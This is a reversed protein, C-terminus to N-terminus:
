PQRRGGPTRRKPIARTLFRPEWAAATPATSTGGPTGPGTRAPFCCPSAQRGPGTIDLASEWPSTLGIANTSLPSLWARRGLTGRAAPRRLQGDAPKGSDPGSAGCTRRLPGALPFPAPSPAALRRPRASLRESPAGDDAGHVVPLVIQNRSLAGPLAPVPHPCPLISM